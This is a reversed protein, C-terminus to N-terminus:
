CRARPRLIGFKLEILDSTWHRSLTSFPTPIQAVTVGALSIESFKDEHLNIKAFKLSVRIPSLTLGEVM